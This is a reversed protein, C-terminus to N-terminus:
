TSPAGILEPHADIDFWFTGSVTCFFAPPLSSLPTGGCDHSVSRAMFNGNVTGGVNMVLPSYANVTTVTAELVIVRKRETALTATLIPVSGSVTAVPADTSLHRTNAPSKTCPALCSDAVNAAPAALSLCALIMSWKMSTM